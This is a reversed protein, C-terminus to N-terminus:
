SWVVGFRDTIRSHAGPGIGLYDNGEWCLLNHLCKANPLAFNSIEYSFLGHEETLKRTLNFMEVEMDESPLQFNGSIYKRYLATRPEIIIQYLSLHDVDMAIAHQLEKYWSSPTQNPRAYILDFSTKPFIKRSLEYAILGQKLNHHRGLFRLDNDDLAQLGISIRNIGANRFALLRYKDITDPNAEITIEITKSIKWYRFVADLIAVITEEAMTSPTGGGFFISDITRDPLQQSFYKLETLFSQRWIDQDIAAVAYSNFDCYFCKSLCFPWHLYISLTNM